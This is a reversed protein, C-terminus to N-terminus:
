LLTGAPLTFELVYDWVDPRVQGVKVLDEVQCDVTTSGSSRVFVLDQVEEVDAVDRLLGLTEYAGDVPDSNAADTTYDWEGYIRVPFLGGVPGRTRSRALVGRSGPITQDSGRMGGTGLLDDYADRGRPRLAACGFVLGGITVYPSITPTAM